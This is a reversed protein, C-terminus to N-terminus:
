ECFVVEEASMKLEKALWERATEQDGLSDILRAELALVGAMSSGDALKAVEEIPMNRNESVEKVFQEHYIKLDREILKREAETLPKDPNTYDKFEASKLSVYDLGNDANQKWNGIYSMTVGISGIDSFPSAIIVDAGTAILYAGSAGMERILGVSPLSSKKLTNAVIESAVPYGGGSDIRVLMGKIASESEAQRIRTVVDDINTETAGSGEETTPPLTTIDGVIPV